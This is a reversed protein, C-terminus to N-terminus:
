MGEPLPTVSEIFGNDKLNVLVEKCTGLLHEELWPLINGEYPIETTQFDFGNVSLAAEVKNINSRSGTLVTYETNQFREFLYPQFDLLTLGKYNGKIVTYEVYFMLRDDQWWRKGDKGQRPGGKWVKPEPIDDVRNGFGSFQAIYTGAVPRVSVFKNGQQNLTVNFKGGSPHTWEEKDIEYVNGSEDFTVKIFSKLIKVNAYGQEGINKKEKVQM